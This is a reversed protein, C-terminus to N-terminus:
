LNASAQARKTIISAVNTGRRASYHATVNFTKTFIIARFGAKISQDIDLVGDKLNWQSTENQIKGSKGLGLPMGSVSIKGAGVGNLSDGGANTLEETFEHEQNKPKNNVLIIGKGTIRNQAVGDPRITTTITSDGIKLMKGSSVDLRYYEFKSVFTGDDQQKILTHFYKDDAKQGDTSQECTGIWEGVIANFFSRADDQSAAAQAFGAVSSLLVVGSIILINMFGNLNRILVIGGAFAFICHTIGVIKMVSQIVYRHVM